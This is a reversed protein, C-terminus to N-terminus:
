DIVITNNRITATVKKMQNLLKHREMILLKNFKFILLHMVKNALLLRNTYRLIAFYLCFISFEYYCCPCYGHFLVEM